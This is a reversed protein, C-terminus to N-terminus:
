YLIWAWLVQSQDVGQFPALIGGNSEVTKQLLPTIITISERNVIKSQKDM